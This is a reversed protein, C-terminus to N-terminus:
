LLYAHNAWNTEQEKRAKSTDHDSAPSHIRTQRDRASEVRNETPDWHAATAPTGEVAVHDILDDILDRLDTPTLDLEIREPDDSGIPFAVISLRLAGDDTTHADLEEV